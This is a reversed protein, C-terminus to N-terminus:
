YFERCGRKAQLNQCDCYYKELLRDDDKCQYASCVDNPLLKCYEAYSGVTVRLVHNEKKLAEVKKELKSLRLTVPYQCHSKLFFFFALLNNISWIIKVYKLKM